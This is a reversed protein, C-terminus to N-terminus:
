TRWRLRADHRRQRRWWLGVPYGVMKAVDGVVRILPILLAAVIWEVGTLDRGLQRLRQWPRLCYMLGGALLGLWGLWPAFFGWFAHGLLAPAGVLYTGYRILHRKRWLDAKGDGRAYRYYQTWFRRLSTRPQFYVIATPAWAFASPAASAQENMKLDFILDECYDLWEPYEGVAAWAAKTFAVSRSSPLFKNPDIDDPLPLVTAAMATLFIQGFRSPAQLDPLFFGAVAIPAPQGTAAATEWPAILNALWDPTLRVGADTVAIIPHRAAAIAANRGRSINAGVEVIVRLQPLQAPHERQYAHILAVTGDTSGGDCLVIENPRRRQAALSTLLREISDRENYITM